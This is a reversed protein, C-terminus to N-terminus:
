PSPPAPAAALWEGLVVERDPGVPPLPATSTNKSKAEAVADRLREELGGLRQHRGVGVGVIVEILALAAGGRQDRGAGAPPLPPSRRTGRRCRRRRTARTRRSRRTAPPRRVGVPEEVDVLADPPVVFSTDVPDLRRCRRTRRRRGRSRWRRSARTRRSRPAAPRRRCRCALGVDVLARAARGGEDRGARGPVALKGAVTRRCRALVAGLHEELGLLLESAPSVSAVEVHVLARAAGRRQDRGPRGAAVPGESAVKRPEDSSPTAPTRGSRRLRQRGRVGVGTPRTRASPRSWSAPTPARCRPRRRSRRPCSWRRVRTNKSVRSDSTAPSVSADTSTYSREPPVVLSTDAPVGPLPAKSAVSRPCSPRRCAHRRRSGPTARAARCRRRTRRTRACRRLWWAPEGRARGAAVAGISALKAPADSSPARTNISVASDSTALSM